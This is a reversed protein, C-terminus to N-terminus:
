AWIIGRGQVETMCDCVNVVDAKKKKESISNGLGLINERKVQM